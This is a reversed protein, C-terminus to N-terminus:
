REPEKPHKPPVHRALEMSDHLIRLVNIAPRGDHEGVRFLIFHRGRRGGRAVHLTYVDKGIEGRPKGGLVHPGAGLLRLADALTAAYARAQDAGFREATWRQIEAYDTEALASLQVIWDKM